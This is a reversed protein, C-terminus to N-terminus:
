NYLFLAKETIDGFPVLTFTLTTIPLIYYYIYNNKYKGLTQTKPQLLFLAPQNSLSSLM